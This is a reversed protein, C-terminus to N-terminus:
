EGKRAIFRFSLLAAISLSETIISAAIAVEPSERSALYILAPLTETVWPIAGAFILTAALEGMARAWTLSFGAILDRFTMPLLIRSLIHSTKAGLSRAIVDVGSEKIEYFRRAAFSITFPASVYFKAIIVAVYTYALGFRGFLLLYVLGETVPPFTQPLDILFMELIHKGRINSYTLIYAVPIAAVVALFGVFFASSVSIVIAGHVRNDFLANLVLNWKEGVAVYLYLISIFMYAIVASAMLKIAVELKDSM